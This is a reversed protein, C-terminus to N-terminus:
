CDSLCVSPRIISHCLQERRLM